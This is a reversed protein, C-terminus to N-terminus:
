LPLDVRILASSFHLHGIGRAEPEGKAIDVVNLMGGLTGRAREVESIFSPADAAISCSTLLSGLTRAREVEAMFSSADDTISYSTLNSDM